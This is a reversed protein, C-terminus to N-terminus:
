IVSSLEARIYRIALLRLTLSFFFNVISFPRLTSSFLALLRPLLLVPPERSSPSSPSSPPSPSPLCSARRAFRCSPEGLCDMFSPSSLPMCSAWGDIRGSLVGLCDLADFDPALLDWFLFFLALAEYSPEAAIALEKPNLPVIDSNPIKTLM